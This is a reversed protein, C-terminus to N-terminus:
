EGPLWKEMERLIGRSFENLDTIEDEPIRFGVAGPHGGGNLIKFHELLDRLDLSQFSHSRRIRFQVLGSQRQDDAYAIFSLFGSEEALSDALYRATTVITEHDFDEAIAAMEKRPIVLSGIRSSSNVRYRSMARLCDDERNSLSQMESFIENMSSFNGSGKHTQHSLMLNFMKSFLDYFWREKPTRIFQGMKTDGVIGSLISLVFNRSFVDYFAYKRRLDRRSNLKYGIIGVLESASAAEDVLRLDPDGIYGSDAELHHDIEVIPIGPNAILEEDGTFNQRMSAKPTDMVFLSSIGKPLPEDHYLINVSNHRAIKVLYLYKENVTRPITLYVRKRFIRILLAMGVLSSICDEDPNFHGVLLFNDRRDVLDLIRHVVRNRAAISKLAHKTQSPASSQWIMAQARGAEKAQYLAQDAREWLRKREKGHEPYGAIGVSASVTKLDGELNHLLDIKKLEGIIETCLECAKEPITDPLIFTFEDGGFRCLIDSERFVRHFVDVTRLLIEDGREQGYLKNLTGFHDLDLMVLALPQEKEEAERLRGDMTQDLFRRNYLGTFDDTIARTRAQEGWTVLDSLFAGTAQLRGSTTNLMRHMVAIGAQPRVKIYKYFDEGRLRLLRSDSKPICTASRPSNDFISMEGFFNGEPIEALELNEGGRTEVTIGVSGSLIIYLADGADGEYFVPVGAPLDLHDMMAYLEKLDESSLAELMEFSGLLGIPDKTM